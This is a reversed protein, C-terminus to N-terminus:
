GRATPMYYYHIYDEILDDVTISFNKTELSEIMELLIQANSDLVKIKERIDMEGFSDGLNGIMFRFMEYVKFNLM